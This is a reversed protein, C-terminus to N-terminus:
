AQKDAKKQIKPKQSSKSFFVKGGAKEITEKASQSVKDVKVTFKKTLKCMGLIKVGPKDNNLLRMEVLKATTIIDGDNFKKELDRINLVKLKPKLSRFGGLKPTNLINNKLGKLKLGGKGGSRSRQGKLGRTAFTGHGSSDGRGVRKAKKKAGKATKLNHLKLAM